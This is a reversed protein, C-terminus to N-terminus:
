KDKGTVVKIDRETSKENIKFKTTRVLNYLEQPPKNASLITDRRKSKTPDTHYTIHDNRNLIVM